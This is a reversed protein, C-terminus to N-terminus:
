DEVSIEEVGELGSRSHGHLRKSKRGIWLMSLSTLQEVLDFDQPLAVFMACVQWRSSSVELRESIQEALFFAGLRDIFDHMWGSLLSMLWGPTVQNDLSFGVFFASFVPLNRTLCFSLFV